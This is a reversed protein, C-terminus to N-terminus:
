SKRPDDKLNERGLVLVAFTGWFIPSLPDWYSAPDDELGFFDLHLSNSNGM